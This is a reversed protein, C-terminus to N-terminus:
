VNDKPQATITTTIIEGMPVYQGTALWIRADYTQEVKRTFATALVGGHIIAGEISGFWGREGADIRASIEPTDPTPIAVGEVVHFWLM